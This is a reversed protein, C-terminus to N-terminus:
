IPSSGTALGLVPNEKSTVVEKMVDFAKQSLVDYNECIIVKM